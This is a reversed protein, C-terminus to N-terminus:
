AGSCGTAGADDDDDCGSLLRWVIPDESELAQLMVRDLIAQPDDVEGPELEVPVGMMRLPDDSMAM